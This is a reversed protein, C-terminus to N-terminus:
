ATARPDAERELLEAHRVDLETLVERQPEVDNRTVDDVLQVLQEVLDRRGGEFLHDLGDGHLEARRDFRQELGEVPAGDGGGGDRLHVLRPRDGALANRDLNAPWVHDGDEVRVHAVEAADRPDRVGHPQEAPEGRSLRHVLEGRPRPALEVEHALAARGVPQPLVRERVLDDRPNM